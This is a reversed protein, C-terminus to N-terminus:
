TQQPGWSQSASHTKCGELVETPRSVTGRRECVTMATAATVSSPWVSESAPVRKEPMMGLGRVLSFTRETSMLSPKWIPCVIQARETGGMEGNREERTEKETCETRRRNELEGKRRM